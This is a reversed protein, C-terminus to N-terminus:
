AIPAPVVVEQNLMAIQGITTPLQRLRLGRGAM